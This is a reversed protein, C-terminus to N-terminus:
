ARRAPAYKALPSQAFDPDEGAAGTSLGQRADLWHDLAVRDWRPRAGIRLPAMVAHPNVGALYDRAQAETMLRPTIASKIM